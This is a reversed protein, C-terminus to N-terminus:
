IGGRMINALLSTCDIFNRADQLQKSKQTPLRKAIDFCYGVYKCANSHLENLARSNKVPVFAMNDWMYEHGNVKIRIVDSKNKRLLKSLTIYDARNEITIM